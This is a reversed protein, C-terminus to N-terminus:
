RHRQKEEKEFKEHRKLLNQDSINEAPGSPDKSYLPNTSKM